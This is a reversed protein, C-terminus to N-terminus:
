DFTLLRGELIAKLSRENKAKLWDPLLSVIPSASEVFGGNIGKQEVQSLQVLQCENLNLTRM